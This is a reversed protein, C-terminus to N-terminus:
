TAPPMSKRVSEASPPLTAKYLQWISTVVLVRPRCQTGVCENTLVTAGCERCESSLRRVEDLDADTRELLDELADNLKTSPLDPDDRMAQLEERSVPGAGSAGLALPAAQGSLATLLNELRRAQAEARTRQTEYAYYGAESDRTPHRAAVQRLFRCTLCVFVHSAFRFRVSRWAAHLCGPPVSRRVQSGLILQQYFVKLYSAAEDEGHDDTTGLVSKLVADIRSM